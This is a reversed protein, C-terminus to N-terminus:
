AARRNTPNEHQFAVLFYSAVSMLEWAIMFMFADDALLVLLMGAVFLGTFLGLIAFPHEKEQYSTVYGPGYLSVACVAIGIILFFFGSLGDFRVHWPLWPLGLAIQDTIVGKSILVALGAIIAFVGSLGLLIFVAQKLFTPYRQEEFNKNVRDRCQVNKNFFKNFSYQSIALLNQRQNMMLALLGSAFSLLVACYASLLIM